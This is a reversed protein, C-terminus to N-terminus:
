GKIELEEENKVTVGGKRVVEEFAGGDISWALHCIHSSGRFHEPIQIVGPAPVQILKTEYTWGFFQDMLNEPGLVAIVCTGVAFEFRHGAAPCEISTYIAKKSEPHLEQGFHRLQEEEWYGMKGALSSTVITGAAQGPTNCSAPAGGFECETFTEVVHDVQKTSPTSGSELYEGSGAEHVCFVQKGTQGEFITLGGALTFGKNVANKLFEFSKEEANSGAKKTCNADKYKGTGPQSVCRGVQPGAVASATAISAVLAVALAVIITTRLRV